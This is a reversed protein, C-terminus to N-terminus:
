LALVVAMFFAACGVALLIAGAVMLSVAPRKVGVVIMGVAVAVAFVAITWAWLPPPGTTLFQGTATVRKLTVSPTSITLGPL